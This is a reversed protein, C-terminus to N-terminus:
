KQTRGDRAQHESPRPANVYLRPIRRTLDCTIDSQATGLRAAVEALSPGGHGFCVAYDGPKVVPGDHMPGCNVMTMDMCVKGAVEFCHGNIAVEGAKGYGNTNSNQRSYGDAFGIGLTAIVVDDPAVWSRDYGVPVGKQAVHVHRVQARLTMCPIMGDRMGYIGGGSRVYGVTSASGDPGRILAQMEEDPICDALLSESNELHIMPIHVGQARVASVVEVVRRFQHITYRSGKKADCMHTCIAAFGVVDDDLADLRQIVKAAAQAEVGHYTQAKGLSGVSVVDTHEEIDEKSFTRLGIRSMGTNLMVHARLPHVLVRSQRATRAWAVLLDVTEESNVMIDLNYASYVDLESSHPAGLVLVKVEPLLGNDRLEIAESLTATAFADVGNFEVLARAVEVAGVGYADAKVVAMLRCGTQAARERLVNANKIIAGLDVEAFARPAVGEPLSLRGPARPRDFSAENAVPRCLGTQALNHASNNLDPVRM